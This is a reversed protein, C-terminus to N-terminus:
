SIVWELAQIQDAVRVREEEDITYLRYSELKGIRSKIQEKTKM